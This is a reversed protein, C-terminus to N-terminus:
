EKLVEQLCESCVDKKATMSTLETSRPDNEYIRKGARFWTKEVEDFEEAM